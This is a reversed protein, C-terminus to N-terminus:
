EPMAVLPHFRVRVDGGGGSCSTVIWFQGASVPMSMSAYPIYVGEPSCGGSCQISASALMVASDARNEPRLDDRSEAVFGCAILRQRLDQRLRLDYNLNASVIGSVEAEQVQDFPESEADGFGVVLSGENAVPSVATPNQAAPVGGLWAILTGDRAVRLACSGVGLTAALLVGGVVTVIIGRRM